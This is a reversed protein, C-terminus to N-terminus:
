GGAVEAGLAPASTTSLYYTFRYAPSTTNWTLSNKSGVPIYHSSSGHARESKGERRSMGLEYEAVGGDRACKRLYYTSHIIQASHKTRHETMPTKVAPVRARARAGAAYRTRARTASFRRTAGFSRYRAAPIGLDTEQARVVGPPM